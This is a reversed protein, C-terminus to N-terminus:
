VRKFVERWEPRVIDDMDYAHDELWQEVTRVVLKAEM